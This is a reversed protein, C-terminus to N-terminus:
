YSNKGPIYNFLVDSISFLCWHNMILFGPISSNSMTAVFSLLACLHVDLHALQPNNNLHKKRLM